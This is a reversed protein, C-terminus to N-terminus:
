FVLPKEEIPVPQVIDIADNTAVYVEDMLMEFTDKKELILSSM